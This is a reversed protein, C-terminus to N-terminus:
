ITCYLMLILISTKKWINKLHRNSLLYRISYLTFNEIYTMCVYTIQCVYLSIYGQGLLLGGQTTTVVLVGPLNSSVALAATFLILSLHFTFEQCYLQHRLFRLHYEQNSPPFQLMSSFLNPIASDQTLFVQLVQPQVKTSVHTRCYVDTFGRSLCASYQRIKTANHRINSPLVLLLSRSTTFYPVGIHLFPIFIFTCLFTQLFTCLFIVM